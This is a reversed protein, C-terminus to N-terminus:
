IVFNLLESLFLSAAGRLAAVDESDGFALTIEEDPRHFVLERFSGEILNLMTKGGRVVDGHLIICNLAMLHQLNALGVSINFAYEQLLEKAGKVRCGALTVLRGANLLHPQPLGRAKAEDRLWRM